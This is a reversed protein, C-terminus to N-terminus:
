EVPVYRLNRDVNGNIGRLTGSYTYQWISHAYYFDDWTSLNSVWFEAGNLASLDYDYYGQWNNFYVCPTYGADRVVDCFAAACETMEAGLMGDTRAEYETIAEWDFVLPLSVDYDKVAEVLWKAEERAEDPDTAQSFLYFGVELGAALAREANQEFCVDKSIYGDTFGRYGARIMAFEIGQEAVAQWDVDGQYYSVDIGEQVRYAEGTYRVTLGADPTYFDEERLDSVAVDKWPTIWDYDTGNYIEVMGKHPDRHCACLSFVLALMLFLALLRPLILHNRKMGVTYCLGWCFALFGTFDPM